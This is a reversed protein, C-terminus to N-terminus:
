AARKDFSYHKNSYKQNSGLHIGWPYKGFEGKVGDEDCIEFWKKEYKDFREETFDAFREDAMDTGEGTLHLSNAVGGVSANYKKSRWFASIRAKKQWNMWNIFKQVRRAHALANETIVATETQNVAYDDITIDKTLNGKIKKM